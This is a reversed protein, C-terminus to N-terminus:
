EQPEEKKSRILESIYLGDKAEEELISQFAQRAAHDRLYRRPYYVAGDVPDAKIFRIREFAKRSRLVYQLGLEGLFMAAALQSITITNSLFARAFSFYSDDARYGIFYDVNRIHPLYQNLLYDAGRKEIPSGLRLKRNQILLALWRLVRDDNINGFPLDPQSKRDVTVNLCNLGEPDFDYCNIFGGSADASAWEKALEQDNSCYFARGFDNDTRGYGYVPKEVIHNSGHYLLM